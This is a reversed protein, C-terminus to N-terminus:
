YILVKHIEDTFAILSDPVSASNRYLANVNAERKRKRTAIYNSNKMKKSSKGNERGLFGPMTDQRSSVNKKRKKIQIIESNEFKLSRGKPKSVTRTQEISSRLEDTVLRPSSRIKNRVSSKLDLKLTSSELIFLNEKLIPSTFSTTYPERRTTSRQETSQEGVVTSMSLQGCPHPDSSMPLINYRQMNFYNAHNESNGSHAVSWSIRILDHM